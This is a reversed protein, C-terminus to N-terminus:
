EFDCDTQSISPIFDFTYIERTGYQQVVSVTVPRVLLQRPLRHSPNDKGSGGYRSSTLASRKRYEDTAITDSFPDALFIRHHFNYHRPGEM